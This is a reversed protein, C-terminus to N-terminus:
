EEALQGLPLDTTNGASDTGRISWGDESLIEALEFRFREQASDCLGDVPHLSYRTRGNRILELREVTSHSDSVRTDFETASLNAVDITPPTRDVTVTLTSASV